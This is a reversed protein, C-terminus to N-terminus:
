KRNIAIDFLVVIFALPYVVSLILASIKENKAYYKWLCIVTILYGILYIILAAKM